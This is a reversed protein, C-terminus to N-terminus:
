TRNPLLSSTADACESTPALPCRTPQMWRVRMTLRLVFSLLAYVNASRSARSVELAIRHIPRPNADDDCSTNLVRFARFSASDLRQPGSGEAADSQTLATTAQLTSTAHSAAASGSDGSAVLVGIRVASGDKVAGAIAGRSHGALHRVFFLSVLHRKPFCGPRAGASHFADSADRGAQQMLLDAGGPHQDLFKSVDFVVGDVALWCSHRVRHLALEKRDVRREAATKKRIAETLAEVWRDREGCSPARAHFTYNPAHFAVTFWTNDHGPESVVVTSSTVEHYSKGLKHLGDGKFRSLFGNSDLVLRRTKCMFGLFQRKLEVVGELVTSPTQNAKAKLSVVVPADAQARESDSM